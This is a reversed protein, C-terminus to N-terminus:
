LYRLDFHSFTNSPISGTLANSSLNLYFTYEDVDGCSCLCNPISGTLANNSIDIFNLNVLSSLNDPISFTLANNSLLLYQLAILSGLGAPISGTLKNDSLALRSLNTLNGFEVPIPGSLQNDFLNIHQLSTLNGIGAPILGNLECGSMDLSMLSNLSSISDPISGGIVSKRLYINTIMGSEDCTLGVASSCDGGVAWGPFTMGWAKQCDRLFAAQSAKIPQADCPPSVFAAVWLMAALVLWARPQMLTPKPPPMQPTSTG